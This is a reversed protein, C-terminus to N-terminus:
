KSQRQWHTVTKSHKSSTHGEKTTHKRQGEQGNNEIPQNNVVKSTNPSWCDFRRIDFLCLMQEIILHLHAYHQWYGLIIVNNSTINWQKAKNITSQDAM